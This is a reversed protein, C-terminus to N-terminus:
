TPIQSKLFFFITLLYSAGAPGPSGALIFEDGAHTNHNLAFQVVLYHIHSSHGDVILIRPKGENRTMSEFHDSIYVFGVEGDMYGTPSVAFTTDKCEVGRWTSKISSAAQSIGKVGVNVSVEGGQLGGKKRIPLEQYDM